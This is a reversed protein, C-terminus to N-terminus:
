AHFFASLAHLVFYLNCTGASYISVRIGATHAIIDHKGTGKAM